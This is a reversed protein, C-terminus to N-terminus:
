QKLSSQLITLLQPFLIENTILLDQDYFQPDIGEPVDSFNGCKAGAELAILRAAAFDWLSLSDYYGDLRGSAVWCIDLAASGLRRIDACNTLVARLRKIMPELNSKEYPLGTAIIARRIRSEEAVRIPNGNLFAGQGKKATFIEDTFPNFVVGLVVQQDNIFEISVASQVVCSSPLKRVDGAIQADATGDVTERCPEPVVVVIAGRIEKHGAVDIRRDLETVITQRDLELEGTM